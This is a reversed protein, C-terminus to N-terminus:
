RKGGMTAMTGRAFLFLHGVFVVGWALAVWHAWLREPTLFRNVGFLALVGVVLLVTHLNLARRHAERRAFARPM